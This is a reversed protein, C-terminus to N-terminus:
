EIKTQCLEEIAFYSFDCFWNFIARSPMVRMEGCFLYHTEDLNLNFM